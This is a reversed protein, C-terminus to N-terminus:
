GNVTASTSSDFQFGDSASVTITANYTKNANFPSDSPSWLVRPTGVGTTDSTASTAPPEGTRPATITVNVLDLTIKDTSEFDQSVTFSKNTLITPDISKDNVRVNVSETFNYNNNATVTITATYATGPAFKAGSPTWVITGTANDWTLSLQPAEGTKPETVSIAVNNIPTDDASVAGVCGMVLFIALLVLLCQKIIM